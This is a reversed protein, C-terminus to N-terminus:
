QLAEFIPNEETIVIRTKDSFSKKIAELSRQFGFFEPSNSFADGFIKAAIADGEGRIIQSTKEAEAIIIDREKDATSRIKTSEEVGESRYQRAQREREARMRDFIARQNEPPLDTRRIRADIVEIGYEKMLNSAGTTVSDMITNRKSSVVETLTNRGVNSRMQSFVVSHLRNQANDVTRATRYFELPDVIRWRVYYDLVITKLDSTFAEASPADYDLIRADFRIVSDILPIKFHLGPHYIKDKPTGLQLVLAQETQHVTFISQSGVALVILVAVLLYTLKPNMYLEKSKNDTSAEVVQALPQPQTM